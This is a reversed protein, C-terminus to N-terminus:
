CAYMNRTRGHIVVNSLKCAGQTELYKSSPWAKGPSFLCEANFQPVDVTIRIYM